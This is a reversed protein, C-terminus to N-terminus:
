VNLWSKIDIVNNYCTYRVHLLKQQLNSVFSHFEDVTLGVKTVM